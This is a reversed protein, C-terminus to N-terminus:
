VEYGCLKKVKTSLLDSVLLREYLNELKNLKESYSIKLPINMQIQLFFCCM